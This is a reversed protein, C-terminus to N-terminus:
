DKELIDYDLVVVTSDLVATEVLKLHTTDYGDFIPRGGASGLAVPFVMLRIRDILGLKMLSQVLNLSGSTQIENGPQQKLRSIEEAVDGKALRANNWSLPEELTRSFVVKPMENIREANDHTSAPWFASFMEYTVRGLVQVDAALLQDRVYKAAEDGLQGNFWSMDDNAGTAFGDLSAFM